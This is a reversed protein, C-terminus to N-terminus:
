ARKPPPNLTDFAPSCYDDVYEHGLTLSSAHFCWVFKQPLAYLGSILKILNDLCNNGDKKTDMGKQWALQNTLFTTEKVDKLCHYVITTDDIIEAKIIDYQTGEHNIEEQHLWDPQNGKQHTIVIQSLEYSIKGEKLGQYLEHFAQYCQIKVLLFFSTNFLIICILLIAM